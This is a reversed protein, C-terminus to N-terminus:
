DLKLSLLDNLMGGGCTPAGGAFYATDGVTAGGFGHRAHPLPAIPQWENRAADYVWADAYANETGPMGGPKCEGGTFVIHGGIVTAAGASRASPLPAAETWRDTAPDYVDHRTQNDDTDALRGGLLHIKGDLVAIAMHDRALGPVAAAETWRKQLPDYVQHLSVTGYGAQMRPAGAPMPLDIVKDSVRGGFAHIKGGVAALSVSGRAPSLAPLKSWINLGPDYVFAGSSPGLHVNTTFGGVAYLKGDLVATGVHSLAEPLDALKQWRDTSPEYKLVLATADRPSTGASDQETGGVVYVSKGDSVANTEGLLVPMPAKRQWIGDAHSPGSFSLVLAAMLVLLSNRPKDIM